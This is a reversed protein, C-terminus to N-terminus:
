RRHRRSRRARGFSPVALIERTQSQQSALVCGCQSINASHALMDDEIQLFFVHPPCPGLPDNMEAHRSAQLDALRLVFHRFM